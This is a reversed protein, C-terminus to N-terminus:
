RKALEGEKFALTNVDGIDAEYVFGFFSDTILATIVGRKGVLTDLPGAYNDKVVVVPDGVNLKSM